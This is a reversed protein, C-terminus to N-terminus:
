EIELTGTTASSVVRGPGVPPVVRIMWRGGCDWSRESAWSPSLMATLPTQRVTVAKLAEGEEEGAAKVVVM